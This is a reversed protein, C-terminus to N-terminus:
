NAGKWGAQQISALRKMERWAGGALFFNGSNDDTPHLKSAAELFDKRRLDILSLERDMGGDGGRRALM